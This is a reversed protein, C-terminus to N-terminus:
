QESGGQIIRDQLISKEYGENRKYQANIALIDPQSNILNLIDNLSIIEGDQYLANFIVTLLAHDEITDITLRIHSLDPSRTLNYKLFNENNRIYPTVHERESTLKAKKVSTELADFRFVEVDFGDPFTPPEVNSVYDCHGQVV